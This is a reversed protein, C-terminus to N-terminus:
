RKVIRATKVQRLHLDFRRDAIKILRKYFLEQNRGQKEGAVLVIAARDPDFAFAARWVERGDHATFRLEKMNPHKSGNLTDVHPRGAKPGAIQVAKIAALLNDQVDEALAGFEADFEDHFLARWM